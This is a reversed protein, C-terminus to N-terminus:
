DLRTAFTIRGASTYGREKAVIDLYFTALDEVELNIDRDLERADTTKIYKKCKNCVNVRHAEDERAYFYELTEHNDNGCVVCKLRPYSWWSRCLSCQLIRLGNEKSLMAMAPKRGCIPCISREWRSYDFSDRFVFSAKEVFPSIAHYAIFFLVEANLSIAEALKTFYETKFAQLNEIFPPTEKKNKPNLDAHSLFADLVEKFEPSKEEIIACIDSIVVRFLDSKVYISKTDLLHDGEDISKNAKEEKPKKVKPKIKPLYSLEVAFLSRYLDFLDSLEPSQKKYFDTERNIEAITAPKQGLKM